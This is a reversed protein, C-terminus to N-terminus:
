KELPFEDGQLKSLLLDKKNLQQTLRIQYRLLKIQEDASEAIHDLHSNMIFFGYGVVFLLAGATFASALAAEAAVAIATGTQSALYANLGWYAGALGLVAIILLVLWHLLREVWVM